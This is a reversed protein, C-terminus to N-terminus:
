KFNSLSCISVANRSKEDLDALKIDLDLMFAHTRMRTKAIRQRSYGVYIFRFINM